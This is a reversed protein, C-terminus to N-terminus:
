KSTGINLYKENIPFRTQTLFKNLHLFFFLYVVVVVVVVVAQTLKVLGKVSHACITIGFLQCEIEGVSVRGVWNKAM